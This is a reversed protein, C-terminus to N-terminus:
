IPSQPHTQMRKRGIKATLGYFAMHSNADLFIDRGDGAKIVKGPKTGFESVVGAM